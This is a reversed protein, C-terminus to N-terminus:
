RRSSTESASFSKVTGADDNGPKTVSHNDTADRRHSLHSADGHFEDGENEDDDDDGKKLQPAEVDGEDDSNKHGLRDNERELFRIMKPVVLSGVVLQMPHWVLIPLTYTALNPNSGYISTILPVGLAITKQVAIFTGTVRLKPQDPYFYKLCLWMTGMFGTLLCFQCFIMIFVQSLSGKTGSYFRGSFITFIIFVLAWEASKKFRRKHQFYFERVPECLRQLLQGLILPVVVILSLKTYVQGIDVYGITGLYGLILAPSLFVGVFNGFSTHFIAVADDGGAASTLIIGVNISMPLCSCIAMGDALAQDLIGMLALLRTFGFVVASIYGFNYIQIFANFRLKTLAQAFDQTRVGLGFLSFIYCVAVWNATIRPQVYIAGLPPYLYAILIAIMVHIPFDYAHYFGALCRTMKKFRTTAESDATLSEGEPRPELHEILPWSELTTRDADFTSPEATAANERANAEHGTASTVVPVEDVPTHPPPSQQITM